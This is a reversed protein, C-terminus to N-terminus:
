DLCLLAMVDSSAFDTWGKWPLIVLNDNMVAIISYFPTDCCKDKFCQAAGAQLAHNQHSKGVGGCGELHGELVIIYFPLTEIQILKIFAEICCWCFLFNRYFCLVDFWIVAVSFM